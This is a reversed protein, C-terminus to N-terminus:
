RKRKQYYEKRRQKVEPRQIYEKIHQKVEPRQYYKKMLEKKRQKVEPRRQYEKSYENMHKKIEPRKCYENNYKKRQEKWLKYKIIKRQEKLLEMEKRCQLAYIHRRIISLESPTYYRQVMINGKEDIIRKRNM